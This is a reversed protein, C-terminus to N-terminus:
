RLTSVEERINSDNLLTLCFQLMKDYGVLDHGRKDKAHICIYNNNPYTWVGVDKNDNNKFAVKYNKLKGKVIYYDDKPIVRAKNQEVFALFLDKAKDEAQKRRELATKVWDIVEDEIKNGLEKSLRYIVSVIDGGYCHRLAEKVQTYNKVVEYKGFKVKWNNFDFNPNSIDFHLNVDLGNYNINITKGKLLELQKGSYYKIQKLSTKINQLRNIIKYATDVNDNYNSYGYGSYNDSIFELAFKMKMKPMKIDNIFFYYDKSKGKRNEINIKAIFKEENTEVNYKYVRFCLLHKKVNNEVNKVKEYININENKSIRYIKILENIFYKYDLKLFTNNKNYYNYYYYDNSGRTLEDKTFLEIIKKDFEIKLGLSKDIFYKGEIITDKDEIRKLTLFKEIIKETEKKEIKEKEKEEEKRQKEQKEELKKLEIYRKIDEINEKFLLYIKNNYYDDEREKIEYILRFKDTINDWDNNNRSYRSKCLENEILELDKNSIDNDNLFYYQRNYRIVIRGEDLFNYLSNDPNFKYLTNALIVLRTNDDLQRVKLKFINGNITETYFDKDLNKGNLFLKQFVRKSIEDQSNIVSSIDLSEVKNM